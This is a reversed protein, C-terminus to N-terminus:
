MVSFSNGCGCSATANPNTIEFSSAGLTEVYDLVSGKVFQLSTQDIVVIAGDREIVLDDEAVPDADFDFHYQFGSCGGGNVSIRLKSDPAEDTLLSAVRVAANDSIGFSSINETDMRGLISGSQGRRM